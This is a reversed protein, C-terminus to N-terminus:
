YYIFSLGASDCTGETLVVYQHACTDDDGCICLADSVGTLNSATANQARTSTLSCQRHRSCFNHEGYNSDLSVVNCYGDCSRHPQTDSSYLCACSQGATTRASGDHASCIALDSCSPGWMYSSGAGYCSRGAPCAGNYGCQCTSQITFPASRTSGPCTPNHTCASSQGTCYQGASSCTSSGCRCAVSNQTVGDTHQCNPVASCTHTAGDCYPASSSCINGGCQCAAQNPATADTNSCMSLSSTRMCICPRHSSCEGYSSSGQYTNVYNYHYLESYRFGDNNSRSNMQVVCGKAFYYDHTTYVNYYDGGFITGLATKCLDTSYIFSLGASDCTGETLVVYQHACTDDDGCICLADSVGTLNSATANQASGLLTNNSTSQNGFQVSCQRHRSCFNHEGYNSGLSVVNCYGDCSRHPQTDSSYLCACSQGATTRASGDHASCIALDGM